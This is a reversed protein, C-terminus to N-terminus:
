LSRYGRSLEAVRYPWTGSRFEGVQPCKTSGNFTPAAQLQALFEISMEALVYRLCQGIM